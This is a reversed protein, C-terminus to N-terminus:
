FEVCRRQFIAALLNAVICVLFSDAHLTIDRKYYRFGHLTAMASIGLSYLVYLSGVTFTECAPLRAYISSNALKIEYLVVASAFAHISIEAECSRRLRRPCILM